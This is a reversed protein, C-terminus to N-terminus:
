YESSIKEAWVLATVSMQVYFLALWARALASYSTASGGM